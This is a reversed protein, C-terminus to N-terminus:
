ILDEDDCEGIAQMIQNRQFFERIWPNSTEIRENIVFHRLKASFPAFKEKVQEFYLPKEKGKFTETAEVLIFYDM